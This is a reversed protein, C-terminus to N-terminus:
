MVEVRCDLLRKSNDRAIQVALNWATRFPMSVEQRLHRNCNRAHPGRHNGCFKGTAKTFKETKAVHEPIYIAKMQCGLLYIKDQFFQWLNVAIILLLYVRKEFGHVIDQPRGLLLASTDRGGTCARAAEEAQGREKGAAPVALVAVPLPARRVAPVEVGLDSLIRAVVAPFRGETAAEM